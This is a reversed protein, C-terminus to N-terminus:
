VVSRNYKNQKHKRETKRCTEKKREKYIYVNM